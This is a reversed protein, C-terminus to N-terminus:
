SKSNAFKTIVARGISLLGSSMVNYIDATFYSQKIESIRSTTGTVFLFDIASSTQCRHYLSNDKELECKRPFLHTEIVIDKSLLM